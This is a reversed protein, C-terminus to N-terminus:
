RWKALCKMPRDIYASAVFGKAKLDDVLLGIGRKRCLEGLSRAEDQLAFFESERQCLDPQLSWRVRETLTVPGPNLLVM